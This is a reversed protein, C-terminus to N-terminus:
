KYAAAFEEPKKPDVTEGLKGVKKLWEDYKAEGEKPTVGEGLYWLTLHDGILLDLKGDGDVDDVYVRTGSQPEKVHADGYVREVRIEKAPKVLAVGKRFSPATKTGTNEFYSVGGEASGALIDLDGDGDWDAFCPDGHAGATLPKKRADDLWTNKPAFKGGGEGRFFGFTGRFNGSVIDLKGDGDLDVATPRTCIRDIDSDSGTPELALPKGDTGTLVEPAGFTRDKRGYLVYFLGVM